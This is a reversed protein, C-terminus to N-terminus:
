YDKHKYENKTEKDLIKWSFINDHWDSIKQAIEYPDFGLWYVILLPLILIIFLLLTTADFFFRNFIGLIYKLM